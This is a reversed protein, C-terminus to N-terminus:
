WPDIQMRVAEVIGWRGGRRMELTRTDGREECAQAYKEAFVKFRRRCEAGTQIEDENWPM